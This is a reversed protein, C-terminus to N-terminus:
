EYYRITELHVGSTKALQGITLIQMVAGQAQLL